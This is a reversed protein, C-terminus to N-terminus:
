LTDNFYKLHNSLHLGFIFKFCPDPSIILFHLCASNDNEFPCEVSVQEIIRGLVMLIDRVTASNHGLFLINVGAQGGERRRVDNEYGSNKRQFVQKVLFTVTHLLHGWLGRLSFNLM